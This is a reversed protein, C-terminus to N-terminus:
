NLLTGIEIHKVYISEFASELVYGLSSNSLIPIQLYELKSSKLGKLFCMFWTDVKLGSLNPGKFLLTKLNFNGLLLSGM